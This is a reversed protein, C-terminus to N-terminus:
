YKTTLTLFVQEDDIWFEEFGDILHSCLVQVRYLTGNKSALFAIVGGVKAKGYIVVRPAVAQRM